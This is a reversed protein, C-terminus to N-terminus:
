SDKSLYPAILSDLMIAGQQDFGILSRKVSADVLVTFQPLQEVNFDRALRPQAVADIWVIVLRGEWDDALQELKPIVRTNDTAMPHHFVLLVPTGARAILANFDNVERYVVGSTESDITEFQLVSLTADNNIEGVPGAAACAAMTLTLVLALLLSFLRRTLRKTGRKDSRALDPM